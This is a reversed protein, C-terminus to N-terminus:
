GEQPLPPMDAARSLDDDPSFEKCTSPGVRKVLYFMDQLRRNAAEDAVSAEVTRCYRKGDRGDGIIYAISRSRRPIGAFGRIAPESSWDSHIENGQHEKKMARQDVNGIHQSRMNRISFVFSFVRALQPRLSSSRLGTTLSNAGLHTTACAM